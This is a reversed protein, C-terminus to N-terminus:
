PCSYIPYPVKQVLTCHTCPICISLNSPFPHSGTLNSPSAQYNTVVEIDKHGFSYTKFVDGDKEIWKKDNFPSLSKKLTSATQLQHHVHTINVHAHYMEENNLLCDRYDKHKLERKTIKHSVGKATAKKDGEMPMMSYM